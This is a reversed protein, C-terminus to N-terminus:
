DEINTLIEQIENATLRNKDLLATVLADVSKQNNRIVEITKQLECSLIRNIENYIKESLASSLFSNPNIVALGMEDCMGFNCVMSQAINTANALDASAGTSYGTEDGYYVMEAARGGLCVRIRALLEQRTYTGKKEQDGHQMYGGHDGRAVITLYSPTEGNKWCVFAHGAEHRATKELSSEDWERKEGGSFSEFAEELIADTVKTSDQRIADRLSLDFVSELQALSMGTSRIALNEILVTSIEFADNKSILLEMYRIREDKTPLDVYIRRDFRRLIAPDLDCYGTQEVGYNTAGLVFVPKSPDVNFGDMETLFATIAESHSEGGTGRKKAVTEIEDIFLISPAYKRALAFVRHVEDSGLGSASQIFKNGETAIFIVGAESAMAKALTTKGTGPPGYLLIGKPTKVGTGLYKKPNKLYKCYYRLEEKADESGIVEKFSIDPKSIDSLIEKSDEGDIAPALKFDFLTIRATKTQADLSQGTEYSIVKNSRALYKMSRQHNINTCIKEIADEFQESSASADVFGKVGQNLYSLTEQKDLKENETQLIFVPVDPCNAKLYKFLERSPSDIDEFNIYTQNGDIGYTIDLLVFGINEKKLIEKADDLEGSRFFKVVNKIDKIGKSTKSGTFILGKEEETKAFLTRVEKDEPLDITVAINDLDNLTVASSEMGLLRLLEYLESYFFNEARSTVIRADAKGGEALLIATYIQEDVTINVGYKDTFKEANEKFKNKAIEIMTSPHIHNFMVVNGTAFRSCIAEPFYPEKTEPNIDKRLANIIVKRSLNSFDGFEVDQYLQKSANTTFILITDKLSIDQDTNSDRIVGRDLAQLFLLVISIHSKEFEDLLIVANPNKEVFETFNGKKSHSYVNDSGSFELAAERFNYGSMDFQAFPRGLIKAVSSALLTKGAGPPGAFLFVSGPGRQPVGIMKRFESRFYGNIFTDIAHEQGKVTESIKERIDNASKVLEDVAATMDDNSVHFIPKEPVTSKTENQKPKKLHKQMVSVPFMLLSRMFMEATIEQLDEGEAIQKAGTMIIDYHLKDSLTKEDKEIYEKLELMLQPLNYGRAELLSVLKNLTESDASTFNNDKAATILAVLVREASCINKNNGLSTTAYDILEQLLKSYKM